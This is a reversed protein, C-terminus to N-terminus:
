INYNKEKLLWYADALLLPAYTYHKVSSVADAMKLLAETQEESVARDPCLAEVIVAEGVERVPYFAKKSNETNQPNLYVYGNREGAFMDTVPRTRWPLYPTSLGQVFEPDCLKASTKPAIDKVIDAVKNMLKKCRLKISEDGDLEYILRLSYQMQLYIYARGQGAAIAESGDLAEDRYELYKEKWHADGTVDFAALYFMPLRLFEHPNIKGWLQSVEAPKGDDRLLCYGNEPTIDRECRRAIAAIIRRIENREADSCISSHYM